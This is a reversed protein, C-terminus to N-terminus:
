QNDALWNALANEDNDAILRLAVRYKTLPVGALKLDYLGTDESDSLLSMVDPNEPWNVACSKQNSGPRVWLDRGDYDTRLFGWRATLLIESWEVDLERDRAELSIRHKRRATRARKCIPSIREEVAEKSVTEFTGGLISVRKNGDTTSRVARPIRLVRSVDRLQDIEHGGAQSSLWLPLGWQLADAEAVSLRKDLKWYAHVGGSGSGVIVSPKLELGTLFELIESEDEFCGSKVDLDAYLGVVSALNSKGGRRKSGLNKIAPALQFYIEATGEAFNLAELEDQATEALDQGVEWLHRRAGSPLIGFLCELDDPEFWYSMFQRTQSADPATALDGFTRVGM